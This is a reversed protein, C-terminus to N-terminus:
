HKVMSVRNRAAPVEEDNAGDVNTGRALPPRMKASSSTSRLLIPDQVRIRVEIRLTM